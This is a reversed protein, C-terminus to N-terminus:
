EVPNVSISLPWAYTGAQSSGDLVFRYSLAVVAKGTLQQSIIGGNPGLSVERGFGRVLTERCPLGQTAFTMYVGALSNNKIEVLSGADVDIFGRQIDADTVVLEAPQRLVNLSARALVTASISVKGTSSHMPSQAAMAPAAPTLMSFAAVLAAAVLKEQIRLGHDIHHQKAYGAEVLVEGLKKDSGRQRALADELHERTIYGAAVLLEGLSLRSPASGKGQRNQFSLAVDLERQDLFGLRVLVEGLKGGAKKQEDLATILQEPTIRHSVLLLEGLMRRVGAAAQVADEVTSFERQVSLAVELEAQDLAGLRVLIEGLLTNTRTQEALATDLTETEIFAGDTLIRGLPRKVPLFFGDEDEPWKKDVRNEPMTMKAVM